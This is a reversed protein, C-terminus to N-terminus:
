TCATTPLLVLLLALLCARPCRALSFHSVAPLLAVLRPRGSRYKCYVDCQGLRRFGMTQLSKKRCQTDCTRHLGLKIYILSNYPHSDKGLM